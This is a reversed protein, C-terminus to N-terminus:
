IEYGSRQLLVPPVLPPLWVLPRLVPRGTKKKTEGIAGAGVEGGEGPVQPGSDVDIKTPNLSSNTASGAGAAAADTPASSTPQDTAADEKDAM